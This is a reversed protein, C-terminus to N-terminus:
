IRVSITKEERNYVMGDIGDRMGYAKRSISRDISAVAEVAQMGAYRCVQMGAYRCVQMGAYRCVQMGAYRREQQVPVDHFENANM